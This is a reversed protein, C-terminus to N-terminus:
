VRAQVQPLTIERQQQEVFTSIYSSLRYVMSPQSYSSLSLWVNGQKLWEGSQIFHIIFSNYFRMM